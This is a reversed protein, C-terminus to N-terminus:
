ALKNIWKKSIFRKMGIGIRIFEETLTVLYVVYIPFNLYFAVFISGPIGVMWLAILNIGMAYKTDGGGRLVGVMKTMSLAKFPFSVCFAILTYKSLRLVNEDVNYMGVLKSSFLGLPVALLFALGFSVKYFKKGDSYAENLKGQGIKHAIMVTAANAFGIIGVVALREFSNEINIAALSDTGIRGYIASYVTQGLAWLIDNIIVVGATAVFLKLMVIDFCFFGKLKIAIPYKRMYIIRVVVLCEIGRAISTALAAGEVGLRPFGYNGFILIYNLIINIVLSLFSTLMPLQSEGLGRLLISFSFSVASAVYSWAVVKLYKSAIAIVLPDKTYFGMIYESKIYSIFWFCLAISISLLISISVIYKVKSYDNKGHYQAIFVTAGSNVGMIFTTMLFVIQNALGLSAVQVGGLKGIMFVDAMNVSALILSQITIPLALILLTKYFNIKM